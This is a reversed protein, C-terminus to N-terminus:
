NITKPPRFYYSCRSYLGVIFIILNDKVEFKNHTEAITIKGYENNQDEM